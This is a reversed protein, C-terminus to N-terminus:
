ARWLTGYDFIAAALKVVVAVVGVAIEVFAAWDVGGATSLEKRAQSYSATVRPM